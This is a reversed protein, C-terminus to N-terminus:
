VTVVFKAFHDGYRKLKEDSEPAKKYDDAVKELRKYGTSTVMNIVGNLTKDVVFNFKLLTKPDRIFESVGLDIVQILNKLTGKLNQVDGQQLKQLDNFSNEGLRQDLQYHMVVEANESADFKQLIHNAVPKLRENSFFSISWPMYKKLAGEIQAFIQEAEKLSKKGEASLEANSRQEHILTGFLKDLVQCSMDTFVQGLEKAVDKKEGQNLHQTINVLQQYTNQNILLEIRYTM